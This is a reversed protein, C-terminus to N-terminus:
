PLRGSAMGEGQCGRTISTVGGDLTLIPIMSGDLEFTLRAPFHTGNTVETVIEDPVLLGNEM